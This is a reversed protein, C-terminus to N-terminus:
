PVGLAADNYAFAKLCGRWQYLHLQFSTNGYGCDAPFSGELLFPACLVQLNAFPVCVRVLALPSPFPPLAPAFHAVTECPCHVRGYTRGLVGAGMAACKFSKSHRGEDKGPNERAFYSENV